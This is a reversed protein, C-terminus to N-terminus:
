HSDTPPTGGPARGRGEAESRGARIAEQVVAASCRLEAAIQRVSMGLQHAELIAARRARASALLQEQAATSQKAYYRAAALPGAADPPLKETYGDDAPVISDLNAVIEALLYQM